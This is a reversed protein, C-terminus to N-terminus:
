SGARSDGRYGCRHYRHRHCFCDHGDRHGRRLSLVQAFTYDSFSAGSSFLLPLPSFAPRKAPLSSGSPAVARKAGIVTPAQSPAPSGGAAGAVEDATKGAVEEAAAAKAVAEEAARKDRAEKDAVVTM